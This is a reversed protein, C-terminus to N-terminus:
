WSDSTQKDRVLMKADIGNKRLAVGLRKAAIAGGGTRETTSLILVKMTPSPTPPHTLTILQIGEKGDM